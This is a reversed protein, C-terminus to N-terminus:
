RGGFSQGGPLARVIGRGRNLYVNVASIIFVIVFSIVTIVALVNYDANTGEILNWSYLSVTEFRNGVLLQVLAFEGFAGAFILMGGTAIGPGINPMVVRRFIEIAPAGCTQGAENLDKINAAAMAGDVAWYLFPFQVAAISLVLLPLTGLLFPLVQGMLILIGFAILIFPLAFPIAAVLELYVRIRPNQVWQWYTAPVVLLIDIISAQVALLLTRGVVTAFRANSFANQWNAMTYGDPFIHATWRTALSYLIVSLIPLFLYLLIAGFLLFKAVRSLFGM